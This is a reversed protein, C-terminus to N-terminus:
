NSVEDKNVKKTRFIKLKLSEEIEAMNLAKCLMLLQLVYRYVLPLAKARNHRLMEKLEREILSSDLLKKASVIFSDEPNIIIKPEKKM